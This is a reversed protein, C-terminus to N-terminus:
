ADLVNKRYVPDSLLSVVSERFWINQRPPGGEADPDRGLCVETAVSFRFRQSRQFLWFHRWSNGSTGRPGAGQLCGQAWEGAGELQLHQQSLLAERVGLKFM